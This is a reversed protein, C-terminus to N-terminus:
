RKNSAQPRTWGAPRPQNLKRVVLLLTLRVDLDDDGGRRGWGPRRQRRGLRGTPPSVGSPWGLPAPLEVADVAAREVAVVAGRGDSNFGSAVAVVDAALEVDAGVCDIGAGARLGHRLQRLRRRRRRDPRAWGGAFPWCYGRPRKQRCEGSRRTTLRRGFAAARASRSRGKNTAAIRDNTPRKPSLCYAFANNLLCHETLLPCYSRFSTNQIRRTREDSTVKQPTITDLRTISSYVTPRRAERIARRDGDVPRHEPAPPERSKAPRKQALQGAQAAFNV